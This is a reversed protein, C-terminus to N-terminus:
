GEGLNMERPQVEPFLGPSPCHFSGIDRMSVSYLTKMIIKSMFFNKSFLWSLTM